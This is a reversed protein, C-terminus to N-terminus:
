PTVVLRTDEENDVFVIQDEKYKRLLFHTETAMVGEIPALKESVFRGVERINNGEVAVRLDYGGSVLWLSQVEPFRYIREAVKDFGVERAPRVKVDIFAIVKEVGTKEWDIITKYHKIVGLREFEAIAAKVQEVTRGLMKAITEPTTRSDRALITLIEDPTELQMPQYNLM